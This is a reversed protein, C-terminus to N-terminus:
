KKPLYHKTHPVNIKAQSNIQKVENWYIQCFKQFQSHDIIKTNNMKAQFLQREIYEGILHLPLRM